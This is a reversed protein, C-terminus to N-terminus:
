YTGYDPDPYAFEVGHEKMLRAQEPFLFQTWNGGRDHQAIEVFVCKPDGGSMGTYVKSVTSLGGVVDDEGHDISIMTRTYIYDGVKPTWYKKAKVRQRLAALKKKNLTNEAAAAEKATKYVTGTNPDMFAEVKRPM